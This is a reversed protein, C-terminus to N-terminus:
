NLDVPRNLYKSLTFGFIGGGLGALAGLKAGALFGIPGGILSGVVAGGSATGLIKFKLANRLNNSGIDM